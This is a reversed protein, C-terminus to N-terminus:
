CICCYINYIDIIRVLELDGSGNGLMFKFAQARVKCFADIKICSCIIFMYYVNLVMDVCNFLM